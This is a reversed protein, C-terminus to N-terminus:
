KKEGEKPKVETLDPKDHPNPPVEINYRQAIRTAWKRDGDAYWDGAGENWLLYVYDAAQDFWRVTLYKKSEDIVRQM